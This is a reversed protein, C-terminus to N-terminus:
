LVWETRVFFFPFRAALATTQGQEWFIGLNAAGTINEKLFRLSSLVTQGPWLGRCLATFRMLAYENPSHVIVYHM